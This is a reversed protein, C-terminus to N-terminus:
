FDFDDEDIDKRRQYVITSKKATKAGQAEEVQDLLEILQNESVRGKLQGSKVMRFLIGEIQQSREPSVLAIRSLRERAATDLVTAMLDRRMQEEQARKAEDEQSKAGAAQPPVQSLNEM